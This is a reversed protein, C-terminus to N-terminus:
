VSAGRTLGDARMILNKVKATKWYGRPQKMDHILVIDGVSIKDSTKRLNQHHSDRLELLYEGNWRKWFHDLVNNLHVLRRTPDTPSTIVNIENDHNYPGDPLSMLQRGTMLHSPTIPEEDDETSWM